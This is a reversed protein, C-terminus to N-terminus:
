QTVTFTLVGIPTTSGARGRLPRSRTHAREANFEAYAIIADFKGQAFMSDRLRFDVLQRDVKAVDINNLRAFTPFMRSAPM